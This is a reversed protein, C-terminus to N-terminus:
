GRKALLGAATFVNLALLLFAGFRVSIPQAANDVVLWMFAANAVFFALTIIKVM